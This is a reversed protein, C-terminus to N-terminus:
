LSCTLLLVEKEELLPKVVLANKCHGDWSMENEDRHVRTTIPAVCMVPM